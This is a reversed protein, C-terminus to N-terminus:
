YHVPEMSAFLFRWIPVPPMSAQSRRDTLPHVGELRTSGQSADRGEAPAAIWAHGDPDTGRSLIITNSQVIDGYPDIMGDVPVISDNYRM